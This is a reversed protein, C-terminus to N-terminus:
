LANESLSLVNLIEHIKDSKGQEIGRNYATIVLKCIFTLVEVNDHFNTITVSQIDHIRQGERYIIGNDYAYEVDELKFLFATKTPQKTPKM